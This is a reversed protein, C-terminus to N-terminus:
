LKSLSTFNSWTDGLGDLLKTIEEQVLSIKESVTNSGTSDSFRSHQKELSRIQDRRAKIKTYIKKADVVEDYFEPDSPDFSNQIDKLMKDEQFAIQPQQVNLQSIQEEINSIKDNLKAIIKTNEDRRKLENRLATIIEIQAGYTKTEVVAKRREAELKAKQIEEQLELLKQNALDTPKLETKQILEKKIKLEDLFEKVKIEHWRVHQLFKSQSNTLGAMHSRIQNQLNKYYNGGEITFRDAREKGDEFGVKLLNRIHKSITLLRAENADDIGPLLKLMEDTENCKKLDHLCDEFKKILYDIEDKTQLQSNKQTINKTENVVIDRIRMLEQIGKETIMIRWRTSNPESIIAWKNNVLYDAFKYAEEETIELEVSITSKNIFFNTDKKYRQELLDLLKIKHQSNDNM